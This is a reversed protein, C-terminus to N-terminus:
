APRRVLDAFERRIKQVKPGIVISCYPQKPNNQFYDQHYAEAPYFKGLPVIETVIPREDWLKAGGIEGRVQEALARQEESGFLIISRYEPGVDNGQRDKTTPDHAHFFITFIQKLSIVAPDFTIRVVEAHGTTRSSVQEYTPNEVTGGAYGSEVKEVGKFSQFIAEICWFCGGGLTIDATAAPVPHKEELQEAAASLGSCLVSFVIANKVLKIFGM